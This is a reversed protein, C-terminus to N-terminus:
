LSHYLTSYPELVGDDITKAHIGQCAGNTSVEFTLKFAHTVIIRGVDFARSFLSCATELIMCDTGHVHLTM